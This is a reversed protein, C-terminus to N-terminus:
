RGRQQNWAHWKSMAAEREPQTCDKPPGFDEGTLRRLVQHASNSLELDADALLDILEPIMEPEAKRVCARAAARRLEGEEELYARLDDVSLRALREVLTARVKDQLKGTVHPIAHALGETYHEEKADRYRVLLQERQDPTAARLTASMRVGEAEAVADPYLKLWGATTPGADEGTVARLAFLAADRQPYATADLKSQMKWKEVEDPKLPRKRVLFDFRLGGTSEFEGGAPFSMSFDQRLFQVDARILVRNAWVGGGSSGPIKPGSYSGVQYTQSPRRAFPDVDTVPDRGVAPVHCLLCNEVHNIRVLERVSAGSKTAYPAAPDPKDLLAVLLPAADRDSLSALADAAHDAAAPWPYQMAQVLTRRADAAPRERLADIAAKRVEPSLDYVARQALRITAAKGRIDSMMDVLILRLPVDEAMLIQVMAPLAEPRLWEPPKGRWEKRLAARLRKPDARKGNADKPALADLYVHLKRSLVGLMEADFPNLQCGPFPRVSLQTASPLRSLLISPDLVPKRGMAASSQYSTKYLEVLKDRMSATLGFEPARDLQRRLDNVSLTKNPRETAKTSMAPPPVPDPEKAPASEPMPEVDVPEPKEIEAMQREPTAPIEAAPMPNPAPKAQHTAVEVVQTAEPQGHFYGWPDLALVAVLILVFAVGLGLASWFLAEDSDFRSQQSAANQAFLRRRKLSTTM